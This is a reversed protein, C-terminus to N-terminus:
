LSSRRSQASSSMPRGPAPLRHDRVGAAGPRRHPVAVDLRSTCLSGEVGSERMVLHRVASHPGRVFTAVAVPEEAEGSAAIGPLEPWTEHSVREVFVELIGGETVLM